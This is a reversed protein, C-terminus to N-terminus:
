RARRRSAATRGPSAVGKSQARGTAAHGGAARLSASADRAAAGAARAAGEAANVGGSKGAGAGGDAGASAKGDGSLEELFAWIAELVGEDGDVRFYKMPVSLKRSQPVWRAGYRRLPTMMDRPVDVPEVNLKGGSVSVFKVGRENAWARIRAKAFLNECAQPMDPRRERADAYLEDVAAVTDACAVRRYLLVREDADPMYEEPVYAHAPVNVTIDSLAPPLAEAGSSDGSRAAVVATQIMQAFLDFGVASMNGSQEAGLLSGAGRIELDRMAVRMGSGLDRHENIAELRATAEETLQVHEPFMFYAYAQLSSRGVRGKLQYMQALGLRQSDEIILTNTHPNDIGSEIITTAVLVDIKGASFAEMVGELEDKGMQGHAVGIRAEGAAEGVRAVADDITRVRNSVYYVQGGRHLERRIATSVVDVDWEGVHVEVPRREDPPTLILSMDRVGSLSMQMTRPIPTASMTLVDIQERLNKLQEKHQVGFRQEEDIVVLGLDHPNVDRSLLRHTGVLVDVEGKAFGELAAAQEAPTRFRSLVEVKVGFPEFRDNFTTYHQQALITTPCLVMVQKRDQTAKFAARLAVETKGFGVDGCILRDMPKPSQMDAKVDAIAALQDPTEDYPFAAEMERQWPTDPSYRFGQASARRTYVDVLDFALKKAAKRAKSLARSWDSTNLRTLRPSSGEPGVYRTVRDLQEVPVYLRDGEAYELLLYDRVVGSVEQRVLEKFYAVGHVAHVVYDGPSFPFTVETMDIRRRNRISSARGQMDHISIIAVKAAPIVLGLPVDVDVVNVIGRKLRRVGRHWRADSSGRPRGAIGRRSSADPERGECAGDSRGEGGQASASAEVAAGRGEEEGEEGGEEMVDLVEAMPLANDVLLLKMDQRARFGPVSFAVTYRQDVLARLRAILKDADGAVDARKVPLEADLMGGVRMISTLTYRQAAGFSLSTAPIYLGDMAIHSGVARQEADDYARSADDILSRPEDLVTLAGEAAYDALEETSAYMLPMAADAGEFDDGAQLREFLERWVPDTAARKAAAEQARRLAKGALRYERVPFIRAEPISAITQGTSPVIRRIDDLEDGFFDLRVPYPLDGPFVDVVGGRVCFTGPGELADGTNDFGRAVLAPAVDEFSLVEGTSADVAEAGRSAVLPAFVRAAHPPLARVMAAGSAVVVRPEGAQLSWAAAARRAVEAADPRKPAFPYDSRAPFHLVSEDGLYSAVTRAFGEAADAGPVAVLMPQPREAFRAAVMFARASSAVGLAADEGADLKEYVPALAGSERLAAALADILM